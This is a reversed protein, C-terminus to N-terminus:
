TLVILQAALLESLLASTDAICTEASIGYDHELMAAIGGFERADCLLEWIRGGSENLSYYEGNQVDLLVTRGGTTVAVVHPAPRLMRTHWAPM